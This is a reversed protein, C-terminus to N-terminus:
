AAMATKMAEGLFIAEDIGSGNLAEGVERHGQETYDGLEKMEGLVAVRRRAPTEALAQIAAIMSAPAANYADLIVKVGRVNLTQM